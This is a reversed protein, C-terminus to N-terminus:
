KKHTKEEAKLSEKINIFSNTQKKRKMMLIM